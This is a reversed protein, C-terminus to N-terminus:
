ATKCHGVSFRRERGQISSQRKTRHPRAIASASAVSGEEWEVHSTRRRSYDAYGGSRYGLGRLRRKLLRHLTDGPAASDCPRGAPGACENGGWVCVEKRDEGGGEKEREGRQSFSHLLSLTHTYTHTHTRAHTHTHTHTRAHTHTNTHTVQLETEISKQEATKPGKSADM